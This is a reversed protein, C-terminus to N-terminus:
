TAARKDWPAQAIWVGDIRPERTLDVGSLYAGLCNWVQEPSLNTLCEQTHCTNVADRQFQRCPSCALRRCLIANFRGLPAFRWWPSGGFLSVVPRVLSALHATGSDTAVVLDVQNALDHLFAGFRSGGILVRPQYGLRDYVAGDLVRLRTVENPGGILVVKTGHGHLREALGLWHGLPWVNLRFGAAICLGVARLVEPRQEPSPGHPYVYSSLLDYPRTLPSVVAHQEAAAHLAESYSGFGRYEMDLQPVLNAIPGDWRLCVLLDAVGRLVQVPTRDNLPTTHQKDQHPLLVPLAALGPFLHEALGLNKPHCYLTLDTFHRRLAAIAPAALILDGLHDPKLIAVKM